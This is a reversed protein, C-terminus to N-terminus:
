ADAAALAAGKASRFVGRLEDNFFANQREITWDEEDFVAQVAMGMIVVLLRRALRSIDVGDALEGKHELGALIREIDGRTRTVCDRQFEAFEEDAAAKAWFAFWIKWNMRREEDFPMLAAIYAKLGEGGPGLAHDTRATAVEISYRYTFLLLERKNHFYHSVIATSCGAAQAVDRM